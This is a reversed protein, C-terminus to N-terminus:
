RPLQRRKQTINRCCWEKLSDFSRRPHDNGSLSPAPTRPTLDTPQLPSQRSQLEPVFFIFPRKLHYFVQRCLPCSADRNSIWYDICPLHFFHQCPLQRYQTNIDLNESCLICTEIDCGAKPIQFDTSPLQKDDPGPSNKEALNGM